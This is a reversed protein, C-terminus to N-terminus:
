GLKNRGQKDGSESYWFKFNHWGVPDYTLRESRKATPEEANSLQIHSDRARGLHDLSAMVMQRQSAYPLPKQVTGNLGQVQTEPNGTAATSSSAAVAKSSASSSRVSTAAKKESSTQSNAAHSTAQSSAKKEVHSSVQSSQNKADDHSGGSAGVGVFLLLVLGVLGTAKLKNSM